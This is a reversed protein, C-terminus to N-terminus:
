ELVHQRENFRNKYYLYLKNNIDKQNNVEINGIM